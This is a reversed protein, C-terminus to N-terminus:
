ALTRTYASYQSPLRRNNRIRVSDTHPEEHHRRWQHTSRSLQRHWASSHRNHTLTPGGRLCARCGLPSEVRPADGIAESLAANINMITHVPLGSNWKAAASASADWIATLFGNAREGRM